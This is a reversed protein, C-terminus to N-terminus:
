SVELVLHTWVNVQLGLATEIQRINLLLVPLPEEFVKWWLPALQVTCGNRKWMLCKIFRMKNKPHIIHLKRGIKLGEKGWFFTEFNLALLWGRWVGFCSGFLSWVLLFSELRANGTGTDARVFSDWRGPRSGWAGGTREAWFGKRQLYHNAFQLTIYHQCRNFSWSSSSCAALHQPASSSFVVALQGMQSRSSCTLSHLCILDRSQINAVVLHLRQFLMCGSACCCSKATSQTQMEYWGFKWRHCKSYRKHTTNSLAKFVCPTPEVCPSMERKM